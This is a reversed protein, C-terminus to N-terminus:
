ATIVSFEERWLMSLLSWLKSTPLFTGHGLLAWFPLDNASFKNNFYPKWVANAVETRSESNGWATEEQAGLMTGHTGDARPAREKWAVETRMKPLPFSSLQPHERPSRRQSFPPVPFRSLKGWRLQSTPAVAQTGRGMRCLSSVFSDEKSYNILESLVHLVLPFDGVSAEQTLCASYPLLEQYLLRSSSSGGEARFIVAAPCCPTHLVPSPLLSLAPVEAFTLSFSHDMEGAFAKWYTM